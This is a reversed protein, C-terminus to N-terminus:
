GPNLQPIDMCIVYIGGRGFHSSKRQIRQSIDREPVTEGLAMAKRPIDLFGNFEM